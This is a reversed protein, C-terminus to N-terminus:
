KNVLSFGYKEFVDKADSSLLFSIYAKAVEVQESAKIVAVPYVIKNNVEAPADAVIKVKDTIAADTAFVIGADVNGAEVYSLVQRVDSCLILKPQVQEYIGLLDLAQKGYTGAPVSEPDGIAVQKVDENLLDTFDAINLTSDTPVVLVVKNNLLDQRTENIILGGDQLTNMQKAAASIFVDVPAGEQIQQQLTGSSAFNAVITVNENEQMYLDNVEQLADTLSLAASVNLEVPAPKSCGSIVPLALLLIVFHAILSHNSKVKEGKGGPFCRRKWRHRQDKALLIDATQWTGM